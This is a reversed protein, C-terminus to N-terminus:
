PTKIWLLFKLRGNNVSGLPAFTGSKHPGRAFSLNRSESLM